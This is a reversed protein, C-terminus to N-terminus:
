QQLFKEMLVVDHYHQKQYFHATMLGVQKWGSKLYFGIARKNTELVKLTLKRLNFVDRVYQELLLLSESASGDGRVKADMFIGLEGTGHIFNMERVQVFGLVEATNISAVVFFVSAPDDFITRLWQEMRATTNARPLSMLLYQAEIDNRLNHLFVSDADTPARLTVLSGSIM